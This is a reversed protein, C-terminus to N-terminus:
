SSFNILNKLKLLKSALNKRNLYNYHSVIQPVYEYKKKNKLICAQIYRGDCDDGDKLTIFKIDKILSFDSLFQATDIKGPEPKNGKFIKIFKFKNDVYAKCMKDQDFTYLKKFEMKKIFKQFDKHLINDDDLFYIFFNEKKTKLYDIAFNRQSNGHKSRKDYLHFEKIKDHSFKKKAEKSDYVIIWEVNEKFNISEFVAKLNKERSCPTVIYLKKEM